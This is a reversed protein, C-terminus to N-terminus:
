WFLVFVVQRIAPFVFQLNNPHRRHSLIILHMSLNWLIKKMSHSAVKRINMTPPLSVFFLCGWSGVVYPWIHPLMESADFRLAFCFHAISFGFSSLALCNRPIKKMSGSSSSNSCVMFFARLFNSIGIGAAIGQVVGAIQRPSVQWLIPFCLVLYAQITSASSDILIRNSPTGCLYWSSRM